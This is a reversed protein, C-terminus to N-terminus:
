DKKFRKSFNIFGLLELGLPFLIVFPVLPLVIGLIGVVVLIAGLIRQAKTRNNKKMLFNKSNMKSNM